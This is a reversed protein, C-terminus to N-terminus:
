SEGSDIEMWGDSEIAPTTSTIMRCWVPYHDTGVTGRRSTWDTRPPRIEPTSEKLIHKSKIGVYPAEM